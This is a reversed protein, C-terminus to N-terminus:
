SRATIASRCLGDWLGVGDIKTGIGSDTSSGTPNSEVAGYWTEYCRKVDDPHLIPEWSADGFQDRSFGTFEYWRENYYDLHGDPRATWVIKRCPM